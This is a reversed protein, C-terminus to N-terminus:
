AFFKFQILVCLLKQTLGFLHLLIVRFWRRTLCCVFVFYFGALIVAVPKGGFKLSPLLPLFM